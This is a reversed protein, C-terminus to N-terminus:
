NPNKRKRLYDSVISVLCVLGCIAALMWFTVVFFRVVYFSIDGRNFILGLIFAGSSLVSFFSAWFGSWQSAKNM